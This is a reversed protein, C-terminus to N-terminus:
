PILAPCAALSPLADFFLHHKLHLFTNFLSTDGHLLSSSMAAPSPSPSSPPRVWPGPQPPGESLPATFAEPPDSTPIAGPNSSPSTPLCILISIAKFLGGAKNPLLCHVSFLPIQGLYWSRGACHPEAGSHVPVVPQVRAEGWGEQQEGSGM